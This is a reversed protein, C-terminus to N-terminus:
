VLGSRRLLIAEILDAAARGQWGPTTGGIGIRRGRRWFLGAMSARPAKNRMVLLFGGSPKFAFISREIREVEDMPALAEGTDLYLGGETLHISRRSADWMRKAQWLCLLAIGFLLFLHLPSADRATFGAFVMLAGIAAISGAGLFVRAPSPTM